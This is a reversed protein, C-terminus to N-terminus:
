GRRIEYRHGAASVVLSPLPILAADAALDAYPALQRGNRGYVVGDKVLCDQVATKRLEAAARTLLTRATAALLILSAESSRCLNIVQGATAGSGATRNDIVVRDSPVGLEASIMEAVRRAIGAELRVYPIIVTVMGQMDIRM